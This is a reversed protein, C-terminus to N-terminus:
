GLSWVEGGAHSRSCREWRLRWFMRSVAPYLRIHHFLRKM